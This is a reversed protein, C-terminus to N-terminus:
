NEMKRSREKEEEEEEEEEEEKNVVDRAGERGRNKEGALCCSVSHCSSVIVVSELRSLCCQGVSIQQM